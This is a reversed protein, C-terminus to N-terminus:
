HLIPHERLTSLSSSTSGWDDSIPKILTFFFRNSLCHYFSLLQAAESLLSSETEQGVQPKLLLERSDPRAYACIAEEPVTRADPFDGHLCSKDQHAVRAADIERDKLPLGRIGLFRLNRESADATLQVVGNEIDKLLQEDNEEDWSYPRQYLPIYFGVDPRNFCDLVSVGETQFASDISIM